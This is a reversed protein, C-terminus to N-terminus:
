TTVVIVEWRFPHRPARKRSAQSTEFPMSCAIPLRAYRADDPYNVRGMYIGATVVGEPKFGPDVALLNRFSAVLLGSGVLLVFACAVQAIVLSRRVARVPRGATTTRTREYLVSELNGKLLHAVSVLGILTGLIVAMALTAGIVTVDAQIEDARPLRDLGVTRLAAIMAFGTVIGAVGGALTLLLSESILQRAVQLRSAGIALRTSLEKMRVNCRALTLNAINVVGILLVFAAGGWLLYLMDRVNRVLVDQLRDVRTYFGANVLFSKYQPFRELNAANIANVQDQAQKM